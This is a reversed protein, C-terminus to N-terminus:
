TSRVTLPINIWEDNVYIYLEDEQKNFYLLGDDNDPNIDRHSRFRNSFFGSKNILLTDALGFSREIYNATVSSVRGSKVLWTRLNGDRDPAKYLVDVVVDASDQFTRFSDFVFM